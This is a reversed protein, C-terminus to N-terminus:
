QEKKGGRAASTSRAGTTPTEAPPDAPQESVDSQQPPEPPTPPQMALGFREALGNKFWSLPVKGGNANRVKQGTRTDWADVFVTM